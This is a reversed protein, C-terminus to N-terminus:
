IQKCNGIGLPVVCSFKQIDDSALLASSRAVVIRPHYSASTLVEFCAVAWISCPGMDVDNKDV